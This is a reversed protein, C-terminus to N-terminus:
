ALVKDTVAAAIVEGWSEQLEPEWIVYSPLEEILSHFKIVFPLIKRRGAIMLALDNCDSYFAEKFLRGLKADTINGYSFVLVIKHWAHQEHMPEIAAGLFSHFEIWMRDNQHCFRVAHGENPGSQLDVILGDQFRGIHRKPATECVCKFIEHM